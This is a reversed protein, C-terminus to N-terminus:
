SHCLGIDTVRDTPNIYITYYCYRATRWTLSLKILPRYKGGSHKHEKARMLCILCWQPPLADPISSVYTPCGVVFRRLCGILLEFDWCVVTGWNRLLGLNFLLIRFTWHWAFPFTPLNTPKLGLFRLGKFYLLSVPSLRAAPRMRGM